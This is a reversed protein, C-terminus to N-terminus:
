KLLPTSEDFIPDKTFSLLYRPYQLSWWLRWIPFIIYFSLAIDMASKWGYWAREAGCQNHQRLYMLTSNYDVGTKGLPKWITVVFRNKDALDAEISIDDPAIDPLHHALQGRIAYPKIDTTWSDEKTVALIFTTNKGFGIALAAVGPIGSALREQFETNGVKKQLVTVSSPSFSYAECGSLAVVDVVLIFILAVFRALIFYWFIRVHFSNNDGLGLMGILCFIIGFM